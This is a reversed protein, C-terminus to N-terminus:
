RAAITACPTPCRRDLLTFELFFTEVAKSKPRRWGAAALSRRGTFKWGSRWSLCHPEVRFWGREVLEAEGQLPLSAIIGTTFSLGDDPNLGQMLEADDSLLVVFLSSGKLFLRRRRSSGSYSWLIHRDFKAELSKVM